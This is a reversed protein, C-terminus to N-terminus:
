KFKGPMGGMGGPMGGMGGPMGGMGGLILMHQEYTSYMFYQFDTNYILHTTDYYIFIFLLISLYYIIM